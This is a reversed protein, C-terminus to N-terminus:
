RTRRQGIPDFKIRHELNKARLKEYDNLIQNLVLNFNRSIRVNTIDEIRRLNEGSIQVRVMQEGLRNLLTM